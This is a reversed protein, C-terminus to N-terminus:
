STAKRLISACRVLAPREDGIWSTTSSTSGCFGELDLSAIRCGAEKKLAIVRQRIDPDLLRPLDDPPVEVRGSDGNMRLRCQPFGLARLKEEAIDVARLRPETLEESIAFRTALCSSPPRIWDSCQLRELADAIDQKGWGTERLPSRVGLEELARMGPRDEYRDEAHTGDILSGGAQEAERLLTTFLWRKCHYCRDPPNLRVAPLTLPNLHLESHEVNLKTCLARARQLDERPLLPSVVTLALPAPGGSRQHQHASLAVLLASDQGGSLAIIIRGMAALTNELLRFKGSPIM